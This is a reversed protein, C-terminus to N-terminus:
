KASARQLQKAAHSKVRNAKNNHICGIKAARDFASSLSPLLKAAEETKGGTLLAEFQKKSTRAQAMQRRNRVRRVENVRAQQRASLTNAM